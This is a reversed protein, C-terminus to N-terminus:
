NSNTPTSSKRFLIYMFISSQFENIIIKVSAICFQKSTRVKWGQLQM